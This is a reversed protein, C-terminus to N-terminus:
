KTESKKPPGSAKIEHSPIVSIEDRVIRHDAIEAEYAHEAAKLMLIVKWESEHRPRDVELKPAGIGVPEM